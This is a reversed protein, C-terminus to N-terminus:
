FPLRFDVSHLAGGSFDTNKKYAYDIRLRPGTFGFGATFYDRDAPEDVETGLRIVLYADVFSELGMRYINKGEPNEETQREIDARLRFQPMFLYNLGLIARGYPIVHAPAKEGHRGVNRMVAGMAFNPLPNWLLGVEGDWFVYDRDGEVQRDLRYISGGLSVQRYIFHSFSIQLREEKYDALSLFSRASKTYLFGGAFYVDDGNDVLTFGAWHDRESPAVYGDRYFYSTVMGASHSLAAPNMLIQEGQDNAAVGAGGVAGAVPGEPSEAQANTGIHTLIIAVVIFFCRRVIM